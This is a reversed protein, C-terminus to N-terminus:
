VSAGIRRIRATGENAKLLFIYPKGAVRYVFANTWGGTWDYRDLDAGVTGDDLVQTRAAAPTLFLPPLGALSKLFFMYPKADVEYFLGTTWGSTWDYQEIKDGVTGDANLRHLHVTGDKAKLFFLFPKGAVTYMFATTWGSTWDYEIVKNGVKGDANVRHIHVTGDAAKLFFMFPQGAVEYFFSTTWGSTWDYHDVKSGVRGDPDVHHIDVAGTKAKLFFMFPNGGVKYFFANTWGGTWDYHEVLSGVKGDAEVRHIDVDGTKSKLFFMFPNGDVEYFFASTWGSTWHYTAVNSGLAGAYVYAIGKKDGDSLGHGSPDCAGPIYTFGPDSSYAMTSHCDYPGVMIGNKEIKYSSKSSTVKVFQNRDPRNHEHFMGAAHALEHILAFPPNYGPDINVTQAGGRRGVDSTGGGGGHDVRIRVYDSEKKRPKFRIVTQTQWVDIAHQIMKRDSDTIGSGTVTYPVIGDIWRHSQIFFAM